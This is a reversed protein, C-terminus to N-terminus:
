WLMTRATRAAASNALVPNALVPNALVPNALVSSSGAEHNRRGEAVAPRTGHRLGQVQDGLVALVALEQGATMRQQGQHFQPEGQRLHEDIEPRYPLEAVDAFLVPVDRDPRQGAVVVQLMRLHQGPGHRQERVGGALHAVGLDAV